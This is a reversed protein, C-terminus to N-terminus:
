AFENLVQVSIIGGKSVIDEVCAAQDSDGSLLYLLIKTDFFRSDGKM